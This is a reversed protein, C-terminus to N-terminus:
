FAPAAPETSSMRASGRRLWRGCTVAPTRAGSHAASRTSNKAARRVYGSGQLVEDRLPALTTSDPPRSFRQTPLGQVSPEFGEGEAILTAIMVPADCPM